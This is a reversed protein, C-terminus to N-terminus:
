LITAYSLCGETCGIDGAASVDSVQISCSQVAARGPQGGWNWINSKLALVKSVSHKSPKEVKSKVPPKVLFLFAKAAMM